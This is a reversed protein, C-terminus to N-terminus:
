KVHSLDEVVELLVLRKVLSASVVVGFITWVADSVKVVAHRIVICFNSGTNCTFFTGELLSGDRM